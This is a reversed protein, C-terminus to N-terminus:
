NLKRNISDQFWLFRPIHFFIAFVTEMFRLLRKWLRVNRAIGQRPALAWLACAFVPGSHLFGKTFFRWVLKNPVSWSGKLILSFTISKQALNDQYLRQWDSGQSLAQISLSITATAKQSCGPVCVQEKNRGHCCHWCSLNWDVSGVVM